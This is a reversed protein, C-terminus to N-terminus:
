AKKRHKEFFAEWQPLVAEVTFREANKYGRQRLDAAVDATLAKGIKEAIDGHDYPDVFLAADGAMYRHAPIDSAVVPCGSQMAEVPPLGFGEAFSPFVFCSSASYLYRLERQAVGELHLILGQEVFPQMAKLTNKFEWGPKGVILLRLDRQRERLQQWASILAPINKRPEITSLTMIYQPIDNGDKAASFWRDITQQRSAGKGDPLTSSSIRTIAIDDLQERTTKLREMPPVFYPIVTAREAAYPSIAKLDSVASPSNCVYLSDKACDRIAKAHAQSHYGNKMTDSAFVPLGDHYRIVKQTGSSVSIKRSDQFIAFDYGKTDLPVAKLNFVAADGVTRLGMTSLKYARDLLKSRQGPEVTSALFDRWVIEKLQRNDLDYLDYRSKRSLVFRELGDGLRASIRGVVRSIWHSQPADLHVGLFVAQEELSKPPSGHWPGIRSWILGDVILDNSLGLRDFLFRTDQPIGSFGFSRHALCLDLLIKKKKDM